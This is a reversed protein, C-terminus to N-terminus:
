LHLGKERTQNPRGAGPEHGVAVHSLLLSSSPFHYFSSASVQQALGTELGISKESRTRHPSAHSHPAWGWPLLRHAAPAVANPAAPLSCCCVGRRAQFGTAAFSASLSQLLNKLPFVFPQHKLLNLHSCLQSFPLHLVLQKTFLSSRGETDLPSAECM